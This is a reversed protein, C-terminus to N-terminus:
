KNYPNLIISQVLICLYNDDTKKTYKDLVKYKIILGKSTSTTKEEVDALDILTTTSELQLGWANVCGQKLAELIALKLTEEESDSMKQKGFSIVNKYKDNALELYENLYDNIKLKVEQVLENSWKNFLSQKLKRKKKFVIETSFTKIENYSPNYPDFIECHIVSKGIWTGSGTKYFGFYSFDFEINIPEICLFNAKNNKKLDIESLLNPIDIENEQFERSDTYNFHFERQVDFTKIEKAIRNEYEASTEGYLFSVFFLFILVGIVLKSKM